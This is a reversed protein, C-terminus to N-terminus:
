EEESEAAERGLRYKVDYNQIFDLEEPTFDYHRALVRDIEDLVLKSEAADQEDYEIVHGQKTVIRKRSSHEALGAALQQYHAEWNETEWSNPVRLDRVLSDNVHECDSFCSYFWYFLSSNLLCSVFAAARANLAAVVRGHPPPMDEGNRRFFPLGVQSKLWYRCAEQYFVNHASNTTLLRDLSLASSRFKSYISIQAASGFKAVRHGHLLGPAESLSLLEIVSPREDSYIRGIRSSFVRGPQVGNKLSLLIVVPM